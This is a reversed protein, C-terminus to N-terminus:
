YMIPAMPGGIRGILCQGFVSDQEFVEGHSAMTTGMYGVPLFKEKDEGENRKSMAKVYASMAKHNDRM